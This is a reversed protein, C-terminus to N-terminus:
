IVPVLTLAGLAAVVTKEALELESANRGHGASLSFENSRELDIGVTKQLNRGLITSRTALGGDTRTNSDRGKM